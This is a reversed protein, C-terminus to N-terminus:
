KFTEKDEPCSLQVELTRSKVTDTFTQLCIAFPRASKTNSESNHKQEELSELQFALVTSKSKKRKCEQYANM